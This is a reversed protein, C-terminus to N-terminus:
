QFTYPLEAQPGCRVNPGTIYQASIGTINGCSSAGTPAKNVAAGSGGDMCATLAMMLAAPLAIKTLTM